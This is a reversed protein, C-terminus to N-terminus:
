GYFVGEKRNNVKKIQKDKRELRERVKKFVLTEQTGSDMDRMLITGDMIEKKGLILSTKAKIMVAEELQFKLSDSVFSQRVNFGAKRLDEFLQLAKLKAQDGLQAIFVIDEETKNTLATKDRIKAITREIGIALGSAPTSIGGLSEILSDYRGGGGLAMKGVTGDENVPWFEFVIDNYYNLGRVLYPNFNYSINLEDLLELTKTLYERSEESLFDALQPAEERLKMCAEDKCDLLSLCNKGINNKCTTCLKSKHGREKYFNLLKACYEKRCESGGLSNVQVQVKVGLEEFFNNAVTILLAEAMPKREGILELNFQTSERYRGSQLKERRFVPGFSFLRALKQGSLESTELYSRLVGQTIEPRLTMKESKDVDVFYVEKDNNHRSTKKYLDFSELIPTKIPSFSYVKALYSAKEFALDFCAQELGTFDKMGLLRNPTKDNKKEAKTMEVEPAGKKRRPM